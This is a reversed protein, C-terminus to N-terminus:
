GTESARPWSFGRIITEVGAACEDRTAGELALAAPGLYRGDPVYPRSWIGGFEVWGGYVEGYGVEAMVEGEGAGVFVSGALAGSVRPVAGAGASAAARAAREGAPGIDAAVEDPFRRLAAALPGLGRVTM